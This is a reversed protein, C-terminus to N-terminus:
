AAVQNEREAAPVMKVLFNSLDIGLYFYDDAYFTRWDLDRMMINNNNNDNDNDDDM